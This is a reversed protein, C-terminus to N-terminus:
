GPRRAFVGGTLGEISEPTLPLVGCLVRVCIPALAYIPALVGDLM